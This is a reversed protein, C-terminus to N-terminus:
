GESIKASKNVNVSNFGKGVHANALSLIRGFTESDLIQKAARQFNLAEFVSKNEAEMRFVLDIEDRRQMLQRQLDRIEDYQNQPLRAKAKTGLKEWAAQICRREYSLDVTSVPLPAGVLAKLEDVDRDSAVAVATSRKNDIEVRVINWATSASIRIRAAGTAAIVIPCEQLAYIDKITASEDLWIRFSQGKHRVIVLNKYSPDSTDNWNREAVESDRIFRRFFLGDPMRLRVRVFGDRDLETIVVEIAAGRLNQLVGQPGVGRKLAIQLQGERYLAIGRGRENSAEM